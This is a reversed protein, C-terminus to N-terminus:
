CVSGVDSMLGEVSMRVDGSDLAAARAEHEPSVYRLKVAANITTGDDVIYDFRDALAQVLLIGRGGERMELPDRYFLRPDAGQGHDRVTVVAQDKGFDLQVAYREGPHAYAHKVANACIEGVILEVSEVDEPVVGMETLLTQALGRCLSVHAAEAPLDLLMRLIM